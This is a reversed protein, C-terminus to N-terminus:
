KPQKKELELIKAFRPDARIPAFDADLRTNAFDRNGLTHSRELATLAKARYETQRQKDPATLPAPARAEAVAAVSLSYVCALRYSTGSVVPGLPFGAGLKDAISVAKEHEGLAMLSFLLDIQLM